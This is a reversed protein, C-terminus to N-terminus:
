EDYDINSCVHLDKTAKEWLSMMAPAMGQYKHCEASVYNIELAVNTDMIVVNPKKMKIYVTARIDYLIVSTPNLMMTQRLCEIVEEHNGKSIARIAKNGERPYSSYDMKTIITVTEELTESDSCLKIGLEHLDIHVNSDNGVYYGFLQVFEFMWDDM